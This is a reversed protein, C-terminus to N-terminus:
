RGRHDASRSYAELPGKGRLAARIDYRDVGIDRLTRDDMRDLAILADREKWWKRRKAFLAALRAFFGIRPPYLDGLAIDDDNYDISTM